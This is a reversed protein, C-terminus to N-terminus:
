PRTSWGAATSAAAQDSPSGEQSRLRPLLNDGVEITQDRYPTDSLVFHTVGLQRYRWLADAVEDYSGVLWTTAAGSGGYRGPATYLCTDVVDGRAAVELLRRQGEATSADHAFGRWRQADGAMKAVKAEAVRWAEDSTSRVVTTVRLGFELPPHARGLSQGLERLRAIRTAIGDFPEGWFLQVDAELAGVQEAAASAGGFYLRPHLGAEAGFPRHALTSAEVQFYDGRFTVEEESWLRRVLQIFERTRAYRRAPDRETDGYAAVDDVGTVVNVLVRGRSAQDLTAAASAFQAASWFGPRIAVLPRFTRTRAALVAAVTFTDPRGWGAGILAGEWGHGEALRALDSSRDLDTLGETTDDGRHGAEVTNPIYWLYQGSDASSDPARDLM